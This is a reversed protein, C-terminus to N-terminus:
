PRGKRDTGVFKYIMILLAAFAMLFLISTFQPEWKSYMRIGMMLTFGFVFGPWFGRITAKM